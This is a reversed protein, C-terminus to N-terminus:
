KKVFYGKLSDGKGTTNLIFNITNKALKILPNTEAQQRLTEDEARFNIPTVPTNEQNVTTQSKSKALQIRGISIGTTLIQLTTFQHKEFLRKLTKPTYYSLHEPYEVVSWNEKLLHKSVSNFNPTTLYVLGGKRLIAHFNTIEQHPTNIHELVEFSTIIDFSEPAYHKPNLEGQQMKIGKAQCQAIAEDTYETGYVEWGRQLAVKLFHGNGCGVDIIKNSQRYAEFSDLLEEYRKV